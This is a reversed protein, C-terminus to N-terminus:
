AFATFSRPITTPPLQVVPLPIHHANAQDGCDPMVASSAGLPPCLSAVALVSL